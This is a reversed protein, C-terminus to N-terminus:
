HFSYKKRTSDQIWVGLMYWVQIYLAKLFPLCRCICPWWILPWLWLLKLYNQIQTLLYWWKFRKYITWILREIRIVHKMAIWKSCSKNMSNEILFFYLQNFNFLIGYFVPNKLRYVFNYPELLSFFFFFLVWM